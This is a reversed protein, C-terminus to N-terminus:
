EKFPMCSCSQQLSFPVCRPPLDAQYQEISTAEDLDKSIDTEQSDVEANVLQRTVSRITM